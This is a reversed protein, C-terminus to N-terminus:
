KRGGKNADVIWWSVLAVVAIFLIGYFWFAAGSEWWWREIPNSYVVISNM